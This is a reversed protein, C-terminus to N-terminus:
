TQLHNRVRHSSKRAVGAADLYRKIPMGEALELLRQLAKPQGGTQLFRLAFAERLMTPTLRRDELGARARLRHFLQTFANGTLRVRQESFFFPDSAECRGAQLRYRELYRMLAQQVEPTLPLVREKPGKGQIHLTGQTLDVNGLKLACVESVLLGTDWLIWLIAQNRTTAYGGSAHETQAAHCAALMREFVEQEILRLRRKKGQPFPMQAFPSRKLYGQEVLWACWAHASRAYISITSQVRFTGTVLAETRLFTLWGRIEYPTLSSLLLLKRWAVYRRLQGLSAEHWERTKREWNKTRKGQFFLTIAHDITMMAPSLADAAGAVPLVQVPPAHQDDADKKISSADSADRQPRHAPQAEEEPSLLLFPATSVPDVFAVTPTDALSAVAQVPPPVKRAATVSKRESAPSATQPAVLSARMERLRRQLLSLHAEGIREPFRRQWERLIEGASAMPRVRVYSYIDEWEGLFPDDM